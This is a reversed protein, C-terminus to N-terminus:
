VTMLLVYGFLEKRECKKAISTQSTFVYFFCFVRYFFLFVSTSQIVDKLDYNLIVFVYTFTGDCRVRM